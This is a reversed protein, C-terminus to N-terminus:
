MVTCCGCSKEKQDPLEQPPPPQPIIVRPNNSVRPSQLTGIPPTSSLKPMTSYGATNVNGGSTESKGTSTSTARSITAVPKLPWSIEGGAQEMEIKESPPAPSPSPKEQAASTQVALPTFDRDYTTPIAGEESWQAQQQKKAHTPIIQQDPPLRPDPRYMTALWPPDGEPRNIATKPRDPEGSRTGPRTSPSNNSGSPIRNHSNSTKRSTPTTKRVNNAMQPTAIPSRPTTSKIPSTQASKDVAHEPPSSADNVADNRSDPSNHVLASSGQDRIKPNSLGDKNAISGSANRKRTTPIEKDAREPHAAFPNSALIPIRSGNLRLPPNVFVNSVKANEQEATEEPSRLDWEAREDEEDNEEVRPTISHKGKIKSFSSQNLQDQKDRNDDQTERSQGRRGSRSSTRSGTPLSIGAAQLEENEIRALKDRHIWGEPDDDDLRYMNQPVGHYVSSANVSSISAKQRHREHSPDVETSTEITSNGKQDMEAVGGYGLFGMNPQERSSKRSLSVGIPPTRAASHNKSPHYGSKSGSKSASEDQTYTLWM